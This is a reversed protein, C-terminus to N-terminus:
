QRSLVIRPLRVVLWAAAAGWYGPGEDCGGDNPYQDLFHDLCKAIKNLSQEKKQKDKEMILVCTLWNSVIWPNWNNVTGPGFGMWWFDTRALNPTLIRRDTEIIMRETIAPSISDLKDGLFYYTWAILSATEAAFLDVTPEAIDPLGYKKKQLGLHAPYGWYSQECTAWLGNVIDNLYKGKHELCEAILLTGLIERRM